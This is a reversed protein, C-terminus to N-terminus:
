CAKVSKKEEQSGVCKKGLPVKDIASVKASALKLITPASRTRLERVERLGGRSAMVTSDVVAHRMARRGVRPPRNEDLMCVERSSMTLLVMPEIFLLRGVRTRVIAFSYIKIDYIGEVQNTM